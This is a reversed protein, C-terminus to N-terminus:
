EYNFKLNDTIHKKKKNMFIYKDFWRELTASNRIWIYMFSNKDKSIAMEHTGFSMMCYRKEKGARLELIVNPWFPQRVPSYYLVYNSTDTMLFKLMEVKKGSIRNSSHKIPYGCLSDKPSKIISDQSRVFPTTEYFQISNANVISNCFYDRFSVSLLSDECRSVDKEAQGYKYICCSSLMLLVFLYLSQRM